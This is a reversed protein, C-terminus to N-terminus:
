HENGFKKDIKVLQMAMAVIKEKGMNKVTDAWNWEEKMM